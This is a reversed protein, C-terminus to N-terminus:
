DKRNWTPTKDVDAKKGGLVQLDQLRQQFFTKRRFNKKKKTIIRTKYQGLFSATLYKNITKPRM